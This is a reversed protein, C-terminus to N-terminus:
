TQGMNHVLDPYNQRHKLESGDKEYIGWVKQFNGRRGVGLDSSYRKLGESLFVTYHNWFLIETCTSM